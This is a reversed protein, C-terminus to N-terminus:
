TSNRPQSHRGPPRPFGIASLVANVHSRPDTDTAMDGWLLLRHILAGALLDQMLEPDLAPDIQGDDQAERIKASFAERRPAFMEVLYTQTIAGGDPGLAVLQRLLDRAFEDELAASARDVFLDLIVGLPRDTWDELGAESEARFARLASAILEERTDWRRYIATRSAGARRAVQDFSVAVRGGEAFLMLASRELRRDVDTSRPRGAM